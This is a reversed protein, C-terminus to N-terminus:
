KILECGSNFDMFQYDLVKTFCKHVFCHMLTVITHMSTHMIIVNKIIKSM